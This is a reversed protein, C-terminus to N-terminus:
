ILMRWFCLLNLDFLYSFSWGMISSYYLVIILSILMAYWGLWEWKKSQRRWATIPGSRTMQGMGFELILMPIGCMFLAVLYPILFAGGGNKYAVYPFRWVNGLGIASGVAALIFTVRGSWLPRKGDSQIDNM